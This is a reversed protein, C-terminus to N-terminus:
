IIKEESERGEGKDRANFISQHYTLKWKLSVPETDTVPVEPQSSPKAGPLDQPLILSLGTVKGTKQEVKKVM